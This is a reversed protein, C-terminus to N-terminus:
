GAIILALVSLIVMADFVIIYMDKALRHMAILLFTMIICLPLTGFLLYGGTVDRNTSSIFKIFSAAFILITYLIFVVILRSTKM